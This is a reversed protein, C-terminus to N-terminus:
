GHAMLMWDGTMWHVGQMPTIEPQWSTGSAERTMPYKGYFGHMEHQSGSHGEHEMGAMENTTRDHRMAVHDMAPANTEGHHMREMAAHDTQTRALFAAGCFLASVLIRKM